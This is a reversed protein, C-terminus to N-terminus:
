FQFLLAGKVEMRIPLIQTWHITGSPVVSSFSQSSLILSLNTFIKYFPNIFLSPNIKSFKDFFSSAQGVLLQSLESFFPLSVVDMFNLLVVGLLSEAQFFHYASGLLCVILHGLQDPLHFVNFFVPCWFHLCDVIGDVLSGNIEADDFIILKFELFEVDKVHVLKIVTCNAEPALFIQPAVLM